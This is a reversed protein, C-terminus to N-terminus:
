LGGGILGRTECVRGLRLRDRPPLEPPRSSAAAPRCGTSLLLSIIPPLCLGRGIRTGTDMETDVIVGSPGFTNPQRQYDATHPYPSIRGTGSANGVTGVGYGATDPTLHNLAGYLVQLWMKVGAGEGAFRRVHEAKGTNWRVGAISRYGINSSDVIAPWIRGCAGAQKKHSDDNEPYVEGGRKWLPSATSALTTLIRPWRKM